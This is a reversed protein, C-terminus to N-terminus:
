SGSLDRSNKFPDGKSRAVFSYLGKPVDSGAAADEMMLSSLWDDNEENTPIMFKSPVLGMRDIVAIGAPLGGNVYFAGILSEVVDALTKYKVRVTEQQHDRDGSDSKSLFKLLTSISDCLM